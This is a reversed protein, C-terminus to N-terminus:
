GLPSRSPGAAPVSAQTYPAKCVNTYTFSYQGGGVILPSNTNNDFIQGIVTDLSTNPAQVAPVSNLDPPASSNVDYEITGAITGEGTRPGGSNAASCSSTIGQAPDNPGPNAFEAFRSGTLTKLTIAYNAGDNDATCVPSSSCPVITWQERLSDIAWVPGNPSTFTAPGSVNTTDMHGDSQTNIIVEGQSTRSSASATATIGILGTIGAAIIM